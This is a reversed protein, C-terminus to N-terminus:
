QKGSGALSGAERSEELDSTTSSPGNAQLIATAAALKPRPTENLNLACVAGWLKNWEGTPLTACLKAAQDETVKPTQVSAAVAAPPFTSPDHDLGTRRQERSPPYLALLDAWQNRSVTGVTFMVTAAEMEDEVAKVAAAAERAGSGTLTDDDRSAEALAAVAARHKAVLDGRACVPVQETVPQATAILDEVPDTM